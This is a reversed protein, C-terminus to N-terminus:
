PGFAAVFADVDGASDLTHSGLRLQGSFSGAVAVLDAGVALGAVDLSTLDGTLPFLEARRAAGDEGLEAWFVAGDIGGDIVHGGGLDLLGSVVGAVFVAGSPAVGVAAASHAGGGGFARALHCVGDRDIRAVFARDGAATPIDCGLGTLGSGSLGGAIVVGGQLDIAVARRRPTSEAAIPREWRPTGNADLRRLLAGGCTTACRQGLQTIEGSGEEVAIVAWTEAGKSGTMASWQCSQDPGFRALFLDASAAPTSTVTGCGFDLAGVIHGTLLLSGDADVAVATPLPKGDGGHHALWSAGGDADLALVFAEWQGPTAQAALDTGTVEIADLFRGALVGGGSPAAALGTVRVLRGAIWRAWLTEGAPSIRAIFGDTDTKADFTSGEAFTVVGEFQGAWLVAGDTDLTVRQSTQEGISGAQLVWRVDFVGGSGGGGPAAGGPGAGGPAAGGTAAGGPAQSVAARPPCAALPLALAIAAALLSRSWSRM